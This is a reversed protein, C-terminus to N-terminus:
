PAFLVRTKIENRESPARGLFIRKTKQHRPTVTNIDPNSHANNGGGPFWIIYLVRLMSLLLELVKAPANIVQFFSVPVFDFNLAVNNRVYHLTPQWKNNNRTHMCTRHGKKLEPACWNWKKRSQYESTYIISIYYPDEVM